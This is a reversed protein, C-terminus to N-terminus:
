CATIPRGSLREAAPGRLPPSVTPGLIEDQLIVPACARVVIGLGASMQADRCGGATGDTTGSSQGNARERGCRASRSGRREHVLGV